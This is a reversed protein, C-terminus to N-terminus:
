QSGGVCLAAPVTCWMHLRACGAPCCTCLCLELISCAAGTVRGDKVAACVWIGWGAVASMQGSQGCLHCSDDRNGHKSPSPPVSTNLQLACWGFATHSGAGMGGVSVGPTVVGGVSSRSHPLILGGAAGLGRLWRVERLEREHHSPCLLVGCGGALGALATCGLHLLRCRSKAWL